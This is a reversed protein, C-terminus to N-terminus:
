YMLWEVPVYSRARVRHLSKQYFCNPIRGDWVAAEAVGAGGECVLLDGAQVGYRPREGQDFTMTAMDTTDINYWHVNANRLYAQQNGGSAREANLMKGLEVDFYAYIPGIRQAASLHEGIRALELEDLIMVQARRSAALADIRTTEGDLFDAIRRQEGLPPLALPAGALRERNLEVQNTAGVVLASYIYSQFPSSSLWYYLYRPDTCRRDARAITVHGDAVCPFEDPGGTFYGVRGVTGNGTSNVLVDGTTLYGRLKRPDGSYDHFRTRQWDLGNVQNAAQSVTRVPGTDVYNPITGRNLFTTSFKLTSWSWSDPLATGLQTSM